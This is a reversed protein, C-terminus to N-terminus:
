VGSMASKANKQPWEIETNSNFKEGDNQEQGIGAAGQGVHTIHVGLAGVGQFVREHSNTDM